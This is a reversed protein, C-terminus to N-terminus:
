RDTSTHGLNLGLVNLAKEISWYAENTNGAAYSDLVSQASESGLWAATACADDYADHWHMAKREAEPVLAL